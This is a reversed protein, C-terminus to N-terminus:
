TPPADSLSALSSIAKVSSNRASTRPHSSLSCGLNRQISRAYLEDLLERFEPQGLYPRALPQEVLWRYNRVIYSGRIRRVALPLDGVALCLMELHPSLRPPSDAYKGLV